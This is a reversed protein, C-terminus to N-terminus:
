CAFKVEYIKACMHPARFHPPGQEALYTRVNMLGTRVPMALNVVDCRQLVSKGYSPAMTAGHVAVSRRRREMRHM